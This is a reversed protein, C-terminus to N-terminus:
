PRGTQHDTFGLAEFGGYNYRDAPQATLPSDEVVVGGLRRAAACAANLGTQLAGETWGGSWSVGDGALYVGRDALPDLVSQFQYYAKQNYPEQGAFNLKFAGYYYPECQWDVEYIGTGPKPVLAEGFGPHIKTIIEKLKAFREEKPFALLKTSDDEWTYSLLVVGEDIGPYDLTYIGRPLEDTQITSPFFGSQGKWFKTETCIFLKSSSTMHLNRLAVRQNEDVPASDPTEPLTMDIMQMSRTTTAVIVADYEHWGPTKGDPSYLLSPKRSLPNWRIAQVPTSLRVADQAALSTEGIGPADVTHRYFGDELASMGQTFLQQKTEWESILIRLLELFGIQFLPGFGGSGVGLAGFANLDETTWSPIGKVIAEYFTMNRYQDILKQWEQAVLDWDGWVAYIPTTFQSVFTNFDANIRAFLGPPPQNPEWEFRENQYYLLTPVVGPDPFGGEVTTMGFTRAYTFFLVHAIPVRMSGLEAFAQPAGEWPRSWARGGIRDTAELVTPVVGTKLLEYAACMGAAGAGVIAVRGQPPASFSAIPNEANKGILDLYQYLTDLYRDTFPTTSKPRALVPHLIPM